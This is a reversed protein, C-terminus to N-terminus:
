MALEDPWYSGQEEVSMKWLMDDDGSMGEQVMLDRVDAETTVPLPQRREREVPIDATDCCVESYMSGQLASSAPRRTIVNFQPTVTYTARPLVIDISDPSEISDMISCVGCQIPSLLLVLM